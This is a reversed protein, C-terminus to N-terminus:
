VSLVFRDRKYQMNAEFMCVKDDMYCEDITPVRPFRQHYYVSKNKSQLPEIIGELFNIM